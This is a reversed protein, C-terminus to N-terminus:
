GSRGDLLRSQQALNWMRQYPGEEALLDKHAGSEIIKGHGMLFIQDMYEMMHLQHTIWIVTQSALLPLMDTLLDAQTQQDLHTGPEDLILIPAQKLFARALAIRQREGGSIMTGSEGIPTDLGQPLTDIFPDLQSMSVAREIEARSAEPRGILLNDLISGYFLEVRQPVVAIIQRLDDQPLRRLDVGGILIEGDQYDWLRLLLRTLTTKGSGSPGLFASKSGEPISLSIDSLAKEQDAHYAFTLQCIRLDLSAPLRAPFDPDVVAPERDALNFLRDAAALNIRLHQFAEPLAAVAEFASLTAFALVALFIGNLANSRVLPITIALGGAIAVAKLILIAASGAAQWASSRQELTRDRCTFQELRSLQMGIRNNASIEDSGQISELLLSLVSARIALRERGTKDASVLLPLLIGAAFLCAFAMGALPLSISAYVATLSLSVALAVAPPALVRVYFEELSEIDAIFRSLLDGGRQDLIGAPALPELRNYFWIRLGNLLHFTANHSQLREGYRLIGRSLGFFRVGVIATQLVAISPQLAAFSIIYAAAALLGISSAITATGALVALLMARWYPTALRLLRFFTTSKM